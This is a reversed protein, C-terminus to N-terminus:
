RGAQLRPLARRTRLLHQVMGGRPVLVTTNMYGVTVFHWITVVLQGIRWFTSSMSSQVMVRQRRKNEPINHLICMHQGLMEMYKRELPKITHKESYVCARM